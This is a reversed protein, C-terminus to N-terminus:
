SRARSSRQSSAVVRRGNRGPRDLALTSAGQRAAGRCAALIRAAVGECDALVESEWVRIVTWGRDALQTGVEADRALRRTFKEAWYPRAREHIASRLWANGSERFERAHWFDGDVFIAVRRRASVIDPRGPLTSVNTRFRWGLRHLASRLAVEPRTDRSGIASMNRYLAARSKTPRKRSPM